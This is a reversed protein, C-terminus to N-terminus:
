EIRSARSAVPFDGAVIQRSIPSPVKSTTRIPLLVLM